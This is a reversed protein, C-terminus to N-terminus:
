HTNNIGYRAKTDSPNGNEVKGNSYYDGIVGFTCKEREKRDRAEGRETQGVLNM